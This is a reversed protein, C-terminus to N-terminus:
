ICASVLPMEYRWFLADPLHRRVVAPFVRNLVTSKGTKVLGHIVLHNTLQGMDGDKARLVFGECTREAGFFDVFFDPDLRAIAEPPAAFELVAGGNVVTRTFSHEFLDAGTQTSPLLAVTAASTLTAQM